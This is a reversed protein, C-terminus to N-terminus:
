ASQATVARIERRRFWGTVGSVASLGVGGKRGEVWEGVEGMEEWMCFALCSGDFRM